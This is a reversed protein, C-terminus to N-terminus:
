WCRYHVEFPDQAAVAARFNPGGVVVRAKMLVPFSIQGVGGTVARVSLELILWACTGSKSCVVIERGMDRVSLEPFPEPASIGWISGSALRVYLRPSLIAEM